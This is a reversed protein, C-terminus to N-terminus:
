ALIEAPSGPLVADVRQLWPKAALREFTQRAEKLFAQADDQRGQKALWEGHELQVVALHFLLELARLQAAAATFHSDASPNAGGLHARFRHATADLFPPRLGTPLAEVVEVLESVKAEDGLSRAAELAHLFGLKPGQAAIGFHERMAFAQEAAILAERYNGEALRVAALAPLYASEAQADGSRGLEEHHSLLERAQDLQGRHLHIELPGSLQSLLDSLRGIQETPIEALRALAEDWRGLMSLAYSM